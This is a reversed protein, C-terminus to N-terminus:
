DADGSEPGVILSRASGGSDGGKEDLLANAGRQMRDGADLADQGTLPEDMPKRESTAECGILAPTMALLVVIFSRATAGCSSLWTVSQEPEDKM